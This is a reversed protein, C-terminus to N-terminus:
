RLGEVMRHGQFDGERKFSCVCIEHQAVVLRVLALSGGAQTALTVGAGIKVVGPVPPSAGALKTVPKADNAYNAKPQDTTETM